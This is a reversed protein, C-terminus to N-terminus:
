CADPVEQADLHRNSASRLYGLAFRSRWPLHHDYVADFEPVARSGRGLKFGDAGASLNIPLGRERARELLFAMALRYLGASRPRTLDYGIASGVLHDRDVFWSVFSDVTGDTEFAAFEWTRQSLVHQFFRTNLAPNAQPHKVLYLSRYLETLRPAAAVLREPDSITRYRTRELLKRDVKWNRRQTVRSSRPDFLHVTRSRTMRFGAERLAECTVGEMWPNVSRVLLLHAPYAEVLAKTLARIQSAELRLRPNTSFLYNHVYVVRDLGGLTMLAAAPINRLRAWRAAWRRGRQRFQMPVYRVYHGRLDCTESNEPGRTTVVLPVLENGCLAIRLQVDANDIFRLPGEDLLPALYDAHRRTREDGLARAEALLESGGLRVGSTAEPM